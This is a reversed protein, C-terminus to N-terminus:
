QDAVIQEISPEMPGDDINSEDDDIEDAETHIYNPDKSPQRAHFHHWIYLFRDCTMGFEHVLSHHPMWQKTSWNDRKRPLQLIGMSYYLIAIFHYMCLLDPPASIDEKRWCTAQPERLQCMKIYNNSNDVLTNM